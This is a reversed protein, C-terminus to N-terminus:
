LREDHYVKHKGMYYTNRYGLNPAQEVGEGFAYKYEWICIISIYQLYM